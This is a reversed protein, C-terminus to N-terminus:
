PASELRIQQTAKGIRKRAMEAYTPNLECGVFERGNELAVVGTTGSGTFPDLVTGGEPSGALVCPLILDPPFVAFHAGSFPKTSVTWVDRKNAKGDPTPVYERGWQESGNRFNPDKEDPKYERGKKGGFTLGSCVAKMPGNTKGPVRSSGQQNAIDQALRQHSSKALPEKIAEHDYYYRQSKSLLFIYEHSKTCRDTISEPMPNPKAWIIDQRLYWGDARLAFALMWPIGILDKTKCGIPTGVRPVSNQAAAQNAGVGPNKSQQRDAKTGTAYSDGINVWLTGDDRLVRRVESFVSVLKAIYEEPTQELGIQGDVGYDRLGYYPPSTVCTHVSGSEIQKLGDVADACIVQM